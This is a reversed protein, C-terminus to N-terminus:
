ACNEFIRKREEKKAPVPNEKKTAKQPPSVFWPLIAILFTILFWLLLKRDTKQEATMEPNNKM